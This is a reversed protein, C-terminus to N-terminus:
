TQKILLEYSKIARYTRRVEILLKRHCKRCYALQITHWSEYTKTTGYLKRATLDETPQRIGNNYISNTGM